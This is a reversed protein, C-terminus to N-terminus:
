LNSCRLKLNLIITVSITSRGLDLRLPLESHPLWSAPKFKFEDYLGM